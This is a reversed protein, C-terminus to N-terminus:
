KKGVAKVVLFAVAAIVAINILVIGVWFIPQKTLPIETTTTPALVPIEESGSIEEEAKKVAEVPETKNIEKVAEPEPKVEEKEEDQGCAEVVFNVTKTEWLIEEQLYSKVTIPYTGAKTNKDISILINKTFEDNGGFPDEELEINKQVFNIGLDNSTIELKAQKEVKQGINKITTTLTSSGSCKIKAPFLEAKNIIINRSEKNIDM